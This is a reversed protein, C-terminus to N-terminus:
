LSLSQAMRIGIKRKLGRNNVDAGEFRHHLWSCCVVTKQLIDIPLLLYQRSNKIAQHRNFVGLHDNWERLIKRLNDLWKGVIKQLIIRRMSIVARTLSNKTYFPFRLHEFEFIHHLSDSFNESEYYTVADLIKPFIISCGKYKPFPELEGLIVSCSCIKYRRKSHM